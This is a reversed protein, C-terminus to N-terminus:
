PSRPLTAYLWALTFPRCACRVPFILPRLTMTPKKPLGSLFSFETRVTNAGWAAVEIQGQCVAESKISDFKQLVETRIGSFLRRVDFFSESQVVVLDPLEKPPVPNDIVDYPSLVQNFQREEEAYRWLSSALGLQQLDIEPEFIVVLKKRAGIWLLVLGLGILVGVWMFFNSISILTTLSSELSLGAFLVAVFGIVVIVARGVGLFPIYLRPHKIADTFYEFDQFIFPERLSHFKANSVQVVLMLLALVIIVSFWPRQLLLLIGAFLILYLGVHIYTAAWHRQLFFSVKPQLLVEMLFSLIMGVILPLAAAAWFLNDLM